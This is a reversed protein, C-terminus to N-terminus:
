KLEDSVLSPSLRKAVFMCLSQNLFDIVQFTARVKAITKM